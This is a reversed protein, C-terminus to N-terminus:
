LVKVLSVRTLWQQYSRLHNSVKSNSPNSLPLIKRSALQRKFSDLIEQRDVSSRSGPRFLQSAFLKRTYEDADRQLRIHDCFAKDSPLAWLSTELTEICEDMYQNWCLLNLQRSAM